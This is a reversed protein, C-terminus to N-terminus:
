NKVFVQRKGAIEIFYTGGAIGDLSVNCDNGKITKCLIVKGRLDSIIVDSYIERESKIYLIDEAPNPFISLTNSLEKEEDGVYLIVHM